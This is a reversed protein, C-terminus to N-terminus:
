ESYGCDVGRVLLANDQEGNMLPVKASAYRIAFGIRPYSTRNPESGHVILAHHLSIQGPQLSVCVADDENVEVAVEQGRSLLNLAAFTDTHPLAIRHTGPLVRLCGNEQVSPTLAVWATVVNQSSPGWYTADQHWSAFCGAGAEKIFFQGAWCVIDPGIISEVADLIRPHRVLAEAWPFLRYPTENLRGTIQARLETECARLQALFSAAEELSM